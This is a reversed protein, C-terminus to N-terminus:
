DAHNAGKSSRRDILAVVDAARYRIVKGMKIFELEYINRSRWTSLTATSVGLVSAVEDPTLLAPVEVTLSRVKPTEM